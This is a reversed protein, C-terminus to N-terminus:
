DAQPTKVSLTYPNLTQPYYGFLVSYSCHINLVLSCVEVSSYHVWLLAVASPFVLHQWSPPSRKGGGARGLASGRSFPSFLLDM